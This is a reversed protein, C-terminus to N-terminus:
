NLCACAAYQMSIDGSSNPATGDSYWCLVAGNNGDRGSEYWYPTTQSVGQWQCTPFWHSLVVGGKHQAVTADFGGHGMCVQNCTQGNHALYWCGGLQPSVWGGVCGLAVVLDAVPPLAALDSTPTGSADLPATDPLRADPSGSLDIPDADPAVTVQAHDGGGGGGDNWNLSFKDFDFCGSAGLLFLCLLPRMMMISSLLTRSM